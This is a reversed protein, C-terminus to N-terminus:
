HQLSCPLVHNDSAEKFVLMEAVAKRMSIGYCVLGCGRSVSRTGRRTGKLDTIQIAYSQLIQKGEEPDLDVVGLHYGGEEQREHRIEGSFVSDANRVSTGVKDIADAELM